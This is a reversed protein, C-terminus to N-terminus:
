RGSESRRTSSGICRSHRRRRWGKVRLFPSDQDANLLAAGQRRARRVLAWLGALVLGAGAALAWVPMPLRLESQARPEVPVIAVPSRGPLGNVAQSALEARLETIEADREALQSQLQAVSTELRDVAAM